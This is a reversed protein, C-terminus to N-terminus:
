ADCSETKAEVTTFPRLTSISAACSEVSLSLRSRNSSRCRAFTAAKSWAFADFSEVAVIAFRSM